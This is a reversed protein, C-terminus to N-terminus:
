EKSCLNNDIKGGQNGDNMKDVLESLEILPFRTGREFSRRKDKDCIQLFVKGEIVIRKGILIGGARVYGEADVRVQLKM